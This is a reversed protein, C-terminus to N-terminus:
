QPDSLEQVIGMIAKLAGAPARKLEAETTPPSPLLPPVEEDSEADWMTWGAILRLLQQYMAPMVSALDTEDVEPAGDDGVKVDSLAAAMGEFASQSMMGPNRIRVSCTIGPQDFEPLPVTVFRQAYGGEPIQPAANSQDALQPVAPQEYAPLPVPPQPQFTAPVEAPAPTAEQGDPHWHPNPVAHATGTDDTIVSYQMPPKSM